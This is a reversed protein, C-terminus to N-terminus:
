VLEFHPFDNFRNDKLDWDRDWDGGWRLKINMQLAVGEVYGAFRYFRPLDDWDIPHPAVDVARSPLDNHKSSPYKLKSRGEEFLENQRAAGRHGELITCDVHKIM